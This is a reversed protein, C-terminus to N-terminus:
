DVTVLERLTELTKEGIGQVNDLEDVSKFGGNAERYAIIAQATVEGIEPLAILEELTATNLNVLRPANPTPTNAAAQPSEARPPVHVQDGDRLVQALNVMSLDANTTAGGAAAIADEVRAGVPLSLRSQPQAVEGTVYVEIPPLTGTPTLTATPAPPLITITVPEDEYTLLYVFAAAVLLGVAILIIWKFRDLIPEM